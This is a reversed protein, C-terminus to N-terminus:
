YRATIRFFVRNNQYESATDSTQELHQFEASAALWRSIQYNVSPRVQWITRKGSSPFDYWGLSGDLALSLHRFLRYNFAAGVAYFTGFGLNEADGYSEMYGGRIFGRGTLQPFRVTISAEGEPKGDSRGEEPVQFFYGVRVAGSVRPSFAHEAGLAGRYIVYDVSGEQAFLRNVFGAQAYLTTHPSLRRRLGVLGDQGDYDSSQAFHAKTYFLDYLVGWQPGFWHEGRIGGIDRTSDRTSERDNRYIESRYRLSVLDDRGYRWELSPQFNNRFYQSREMRTGVRFETPGPVQDPPPPDEPILVERPEDSLIFNDLLRLTLNRVLAQRADLNAAHGVFNLDRNRAYFNANLHYDLLLLGTKSDLLIQGGPSFTTIFDALPDTSSLNINDNYQEQLTADLHWQTRLQGEAKESLCALGLSFTCVLATLLHPFERHSGRIKGGGGNM